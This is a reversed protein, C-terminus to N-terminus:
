SIDVENIGGKSLLYFFIYCKGIRYYIFNCWCGCLIINSFKCVKVNFIGLWDNIFWKMLLNNFIIKVVFM